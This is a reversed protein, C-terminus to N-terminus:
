PRCILIAKTVLTTLIMLITPNSDRNSVFSKGQSVCPKISQKTAQIM